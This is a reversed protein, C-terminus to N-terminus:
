GKINIEILENAWNRGKFNLFDSGFIQDPSSQKYWVVNLGESEVGTVLLAVDTFTPHTYSQGTAFTRM